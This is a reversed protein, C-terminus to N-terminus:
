SLQGAILTDIADVVESTQVALLPRPCDHVVPRLIKHPVGWPHWRKPPPDGFLVVMPVGFSAAVHMLGTDVGFGLSCTRLLAGLSSLPLVSSWDYLHERCSKPLRSAVDAYYAANSPADCSHVEMGHDEILHRCVEAVRDVDWDKDTITARAFLFVRQRGGRPCLKTFTQESAEDVWNENHTDVIPVGDARLVDLFTEVEHNDQIPTSRSHLLWTGGDSFGVRHPIGALRAILAASFARRLVYVRDYNRRRLHRAIEWVGVPMGAVPKRPKHIRVYILENIYPCHRLVDGSVPEVMVDIQAEPFAARLNRLAPIALVTDGLYRNRIVLIRRPSPAQASM